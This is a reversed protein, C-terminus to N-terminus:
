LNEQNALSHLFSFRYFGIFNPNEIRPQWRTDNWNLLEDMNVVRLGSDNTKENSRPRHGNHYVIRNGTWVMVHQDDGQDFFLLDGAELNETNKGVFVANQQILPLARVFFSKQGDSNKWIKFHEREKATLEIQAPLARGIYGNSKRWKLDHHAFTENVAFRVLSACDRQTWRPNPGRTIQDEILTIFWSRFSKMQVANLQVAQTNCIVAFCFVFTALKPVKM